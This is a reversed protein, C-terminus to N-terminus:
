PAGPASPQPPWAPSPAGTGTTATATDEAADAGVATAIADVQTAIADVKEELYTVRGELDGSSPTPPETPGPTGAPPETGPPDVVPPEAPEPEPVEDARAEALLDPSGSHDTTITVTSLDDAYEKVLDLVDAVFAAERDPDAIAGDLVLSLGM